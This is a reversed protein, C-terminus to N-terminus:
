PHGHIVRYISHIANFPITTAHQLLKADTPMTAMATTIDQTAPTLAHEQFLAHALLQALVHLTHGVVVGRRVDVVIVAQLHYLVDLLVSNLLMRYLQVLEKIVIILLVLQRRRVVLTDVINGQM